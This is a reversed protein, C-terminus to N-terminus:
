APASWGMARYCALVERTIAGTANRLDADTGQRRGLLLNLGGGIAMHIPVATGLTVAATVILGPKRGSHRHSVTTGACGGLLLLTLMSAVKAFTTGRIVSTPHAHTM